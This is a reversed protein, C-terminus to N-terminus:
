HLAKSGSAQANYRDYSCSGSKEIRVEVSVTKTNLRRDRHREGHQPKKQLGGRQTSASGGAGVGRM